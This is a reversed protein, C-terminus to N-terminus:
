ESSLMMAEAHAQVVAPHDRDGFALKLAMARSQAIWFQRRREQEFPSANQEELSNSGQSDPGEAVVGPEVYRCLPCDRELRRGSNYVIKMFHIGAALLM